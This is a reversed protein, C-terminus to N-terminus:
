GASARAPTGLLLDMARRVVEFDLPKTWYDAFGQRLAAQIDDPMANASVAICPVRQTLPDARLRSLVELGHGDPLQMDLLLLDPVRARAKALGSTADPASDFDLDGRRTLLEAMIMVNVANDEIYLVRRLTGPHGAQPADSADGGAALAPVLPLRVCFESGQGPESSASVQGGMADVLSRVVALGLGLGEVGTGQRSLRHFPEFVANLQDAPLGIGTDRVRLCVQGAEEGSAVQVLGGPQNYKIANTLLNLLVQRLRLPDARVQCHGPQWRLQVGCRAAEQEVLPLTDAVLSDLALVSLNLPEPQADPRALTLVDDVLALLHQGAGYIHRLRRERLAADAQQSDDLLLQAFGLIANLPTRLEHSLRALLHSKAESERQALAQEQLVQAARRSETVDWNVGIRRVPRGQEDSIMVSRSALWRLGGDPLKVRFEYTQPIGLHMSAAIRQKMVARDDEHVFNIMEALSPAQPSPPLGRLLFMQDDWRRQDADFVYEWTGIGLAHTTLAIRQDAQRLRDLAQQRVSVDLAVMLPPGAQGVGRHQAMCRTWAHRWRGDLRQFRVITDVPQDQQRSRAVAERMLARDDPHLREVLEAATWDCQEPSAGILRAAPANGQVREGGLRWVALEALSLGLLLEDQGLPLAAAAPLAPTADPPM